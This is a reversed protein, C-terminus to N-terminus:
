LWWYSGIILSGIEWGIKAQLRPLAFGRWGPEEFLPSTILGPFFTLPIIAILALGLEAPSPNLLNLQSENGAIFSLTNGLTIVVPLAFAALILWPIDHKWSKITDFIETLIVDQRSIKQIILISLIPSLGGLSSPIIILENPWLGLVM